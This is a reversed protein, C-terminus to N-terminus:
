KRYITIIINEFNEKIEKENDKKNEEIKKDEDRQIKQEDNKNNNFNYDKYKEFSDLDSNLPTLFSNDVILGLIIDKSIFQRIIEKDKNNKYINNGKLNLYM